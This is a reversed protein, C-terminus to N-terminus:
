EKVIEVVYPEVWNSALERLKNEDVASGLTRDLLAINTSRSENSISQKM